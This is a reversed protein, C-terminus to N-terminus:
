GEAMGAGETWFELSVSTMCLVYTGLGIEVRSVVRDV